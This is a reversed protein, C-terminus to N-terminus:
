LIGEVEVLRDSSCPVGEDVYTTRRRGGVFEEVAVFGSAVREGEARATHYSLMCILTVGQSSSIVGSCIGFGFGFEPHAHARVKEGAAGEEEKCVTCDNGAAGGGGEGAVEDGKVPTWLREDGVYM